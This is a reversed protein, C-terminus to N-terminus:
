TTAYYATLGIEGGPTFTAISGTIKIGIGRTTDTPTVRFATKLTPRAVGGAQLLTSASFFEAGVTRANDNVGFLGSMVGVDCTLVTGSDMDDTDLILDMVRCGVPIPALELIDNLAPAATFIHSFRHAVVHGAFAPFPALVIGKSYKSQILAM